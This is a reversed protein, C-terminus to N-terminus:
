ILFLDKTDEIIKLPKYLLDQPWFNKLVAAKIYVWSYLKQSM